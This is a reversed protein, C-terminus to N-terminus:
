MGPFGSWHPQLNFYKCIAEALRLSTIYKLNYIYRETEDVEKRREEPVISVFRDVNPLIVMGM